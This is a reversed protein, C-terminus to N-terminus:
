NGPWYPADAGTMKQCGGKSACPLIREGYIYMEGMDFSVSLQAADWEGMGTTIETTNSPDCIIGPTCAPRGSGTYKYFLYLIAGHDSQQGIPHGDPTVAVGWEIPRPTVGHPQFVSGTTELIVKPESPTGSDDYWYTGHYPFGSFEKQTLCVSGKEAYPVGVFDSGKITTPEIGDPCTVEAGGGCGALSSFLAFTPVLYLTHRM